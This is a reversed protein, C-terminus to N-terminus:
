EVYDTNRDNDPDRGRPGKRRLSHKRVQVVHICIRFFPQHIRAIGDYNSGSCMCTIGRRVLAFANRSSSSLRPLMAVLESDVSKPISLREMHRRTALDKEKCAVPRHEIANPQLCRAGNSLLRSIPGQPIAVTQWMPIIRRHRHTKGVGSLANCYVLVRPNESSRVLYNLKDRPSDHCELVACLTASRTPSSFRRYEAEEPQVTGDSSRALCGPAIAPFRRLGIGPTPEM